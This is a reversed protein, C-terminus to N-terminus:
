NCFCIRKLINEENNDANLKITGRDKINQRKINSKLLEKGISMFIETSNRGDKASAEYFILKNNKAYIEGYDKPVKISQKLDIKNGVM